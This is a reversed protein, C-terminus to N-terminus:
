ELRARKVSSKVSKNDFALNSGDFDFATIQTAMTQIFTELRLMGHKVEKGSVYLHKVM